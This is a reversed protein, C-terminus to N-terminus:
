VTGANYRYSTEKEKEEAIRKKERLDEEEKKAKEMNYKLIRLDEEREELLKKQKNLVSIKNSEVIERAIQENAIRKREMQRLDEDALEKLQRLILQKDKELTERQKIRECEKQKM